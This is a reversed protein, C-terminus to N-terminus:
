DPHYICLNYLRIMHDMKTSGFTIPAESSIPTIDNMMEDKADRKATGDWVLRPNKGEKMVMGQPVHHATWSFRAVWSPFPAVHIYREEKKLTKQVIDPYDLVSKQNGQWLLTMKKM